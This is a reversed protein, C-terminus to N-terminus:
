GPKRAMVTYWSCDERYPGFQAPNLFVSVDTYNMEALKEEILSKSIPYYHETFIEKQVIKLNQEFTYLINFDMSGDTNYDWLQVLNVRIDDVFFPNYTYFRQRDKLIKDWNRMDFYLYGGPRILSDMNELVSLLEDNNVYPLSNGTSAVCDFTESFESKLKRFDCPKLVPSFGRKEAKAKCRELMAESLDSGYLTVGLECVPLSLSGSGISVDLFTRIDKGEFLTEWHKKIINFREENEILDYIEARDYLSAM